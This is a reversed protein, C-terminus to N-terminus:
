KKDKKKPAAKLYVIPDTEKVADTGELSKRFQEVAKGKEGRPM